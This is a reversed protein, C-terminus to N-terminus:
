HTSGRLEGVARPEYDLVEIFLVRRRTTGVVRRYVQLRGTGEDFRARLDAPHAEEPAQTGVALRVDERLLKFLGPMSYDYAAVEQPPVTDGNRTLKVVRGGAVELDYVTAGARPARIQVVLRYADSGHAEWKRWAAEVATETLPAMPPPGFCAALALVLIASGWVRHVQSRKM